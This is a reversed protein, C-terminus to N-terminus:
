REPRARSQERYRHIHFRSGIVYAYQIELQKVPIGCCCENATFKRLSVATTSPAGYLADLERLRLRNRQVRGATGDTAAREIDPKSARERKHRRYCFLSASM